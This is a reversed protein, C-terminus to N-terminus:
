TVGTLKYLERANDCIMRRKEAAPVGVMSEEIIRRSYPWDHRHHPYDNSWMLNDIGIWHRVAVAFPERIFTVKINRRFYDSPLMTLKSGTWTRNRWWHDDMHELFAPVWGAGVEAGVVRLGPFRDFMESYILRSM